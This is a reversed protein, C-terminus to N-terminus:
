KVKNKIIEDMKKAMMMAHEKKTVKIYKLFQGETTHGSVAMIMIPPFGMKYMNTCFSRRGTHSTVLQWKEFTETKRKGGVTRTRTEISKLKVAECIDKIYENFKQNSIETPLSYDYKEFIEIVVPFLPITVVNNTKQQRFTIYKKGDEEKIDTKTINSLDSFRCGTWALLLFCDRVRDLHPIKSLNKDKLQQLEKENLYISDVDERPAYFDNRLGPLYCIGKSQADGLMLKLVRIHKGVGNLTFAKKIVVTKGKQVATIEKQLYAVFNDYFEKNMESFEFDERNVSKAFELLRKETARYNQINNYSLLVGTKKVTRKHATNIFNTIFQFVTMPKEVKPAYREPFFFKDVEVKLWDPTINPKDTENFLDTITNCLNDLKGQQELLFKILEEKKKTLLRSNPIKIKQNDADWYEAPIFVNTTTQQDIKKGHKFRIRIAKQPNSNTKNSLTLYITAM